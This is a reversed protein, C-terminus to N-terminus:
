RLLLWLTLIAAALLVVGFLGGAIYLPNLGSRKAKPSIPALLPQPASPGFPDPDFGSPAAPAPPAVPAALARASVPPPPMHARPAIPPPMLGRSLPAPEGVAGRAEPPESPESHDSHDSDSHDFVIPADSLRDKSRSPPRMTAREAIDGAVRAHSISASGTLSPFSGTLKSAEPPLPRKHVEEFLTDLLMHIRRESIADGHRDLFAELADHLQRGTQFRQGPDKALCSKIIADLEFPVDKRIGKVSPVPDEVIAQLTGVASERQYLSRGSLAEFLCIGLSFIDSRPDLSEGRAQEPSMYSYKGKLLGAESKDNKANTKAIGFDLLKVHGEWSIMVNHPSVDRHIINLAKGDVGTARHVYDLASAIQSIIRVAVPMALGGHKNAQRILRRLSVGWVWEMALFTAGNIEGVEYVHCVNAHYLRVALRGEELFMQNFNEDGFLEPLVRKLVVHRTDGEDSVERALFVEAMGGRALRGLIEFRGFEALAQLHPVEPQSFLSTDVMTGDEFEDDDFLSGSGLDFDGAGNSSGNGM